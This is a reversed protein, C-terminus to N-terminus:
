GPEYSIAYYLESDHSGTDVIEVSTLKWPQRRYAESNIHNRFESSTIAIAYIATMDNADRQRQEILSQITERDTLQFRDREVVTYHADNKSTQRQTSVVSDFLESIQRLIDKSDLKMSRLEIGGISILSGLISFSSLTLLSSTELGEIETYGTALLVIFILSAATAVAGLLQSILTVKRAFSESQPSKENTAYVFSVESLNAICTTKGARDTIQLINATNSDDCPGLGVYYGEHYFTTGNQLRIQYLTM